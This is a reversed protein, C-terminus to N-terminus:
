TQPPCDRSLKFDKRNLEYVIFPMPDSPDRLYGKFTMGLKQVVKLSATNDPMVKVIIRKLNLQHFGYGLCAAAAETALGLGWLKKLFRYGLDVEDQQPYYKLGCWGAYSGDLLHVAFRGMRTDRFEPILTDAILQHAETLSTMLKDGTFRMVAPDSNLELLNPADTLVAPRLLLRATTLM